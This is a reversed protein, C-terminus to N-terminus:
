GDVPERGSGSVNLCPGCTLTLRGGASVPGTQYAARREEDRNRLDYGCVVCSLGVTGAQEVAWSPWDAALPLRVMMAGDGELRLAHLDFGRADWPLDAVAPGLSPMRQVLAPLEQHTVRVERGRRVRGAPDGSLPPRWAEVVVCGVGLVELDAALEAADAKWAGAAVERWLSLGGGGLFGCSRVTAVVRRSAAREQDTSRAM